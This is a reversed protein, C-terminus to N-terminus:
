KSIFSHAIRIAAIVKKNLAVPILFTPEKEQDKLSSDLIEQLVQPSVSEVPRVASEMRAKEEESLRFFHQGLKKILDRSFSVLDTLSATGPQKQHSNM